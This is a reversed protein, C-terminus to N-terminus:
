ERWDRSRIASWTSVAAPPCQSSPITTMGPQSLFMGPPNIAHADANADIYADEEGDSM